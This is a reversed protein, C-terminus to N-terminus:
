GPRLGEELARKLQDRVEEAPGAIGGASVFNPRGGGGGGRERAVNVVPGTLDLDVDDSRGAAITVPDDGAILAMVISEEESIAKAVMKRVPDPDLNEAVEVLLRVKGVMEGGQLLEQGRYEALTQRLKRATKEAEQLDSAMKQVVQSLQDRSTNLLEAVEGLVRADQAMEAVAREGVAYDIRTVNKSHIERGLVKIPGVEITRQVHTGSCAATDWGQMDVIRVEGEPLDINYALGEIAAARDTDVHYTTVPRDEVVGENALREIERVEHGRIARGVDLYLSGVEGIHFGAYAVDGFLKRAAGFLLHCASHTRMNHVRYEGDIECAVVAGQRLSQPAEDDAEVFHVIVDGVEQVDVVRADAIKGRDSPQGGGEPFFYTEELVIGLRDGETVVERIRGEFSFTYPDQWYKKM